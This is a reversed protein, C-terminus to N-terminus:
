RIAMSESYFKSPLSIFKKVSANVNKANKYLNCLTRRCTLGDIVKLCLETQWAGDEM